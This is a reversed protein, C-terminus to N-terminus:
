TCRTCRSSSTAGRALAPRPNFRRDAAPLSPGEQDGRACARPASQFEHALWAIAPVAQDGRACARPASQFPLPHAPAAATTPRGARLRPARISVQTAWSASHAPMADGRACARPASQFQARRHDATDRAEDGRACARPASQFLSAGVGAHVRRLRGARLRPARISVCRPGPLPRRPNTAGRALAPRPNFCRSRAVPRSVARDGRACARPASQFTM